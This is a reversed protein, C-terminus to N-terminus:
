RSSDSRFARPRIEGVRGVPAERGVVKGDRTLWEYYGGNVDDHAHDEIWRYARQALDLAKPDHTTEYAAAAGYLCFSIGYLHKGDTFRPIVKGDDGLGWYFGGYQKDWLVDELYALGHRAIPLYTGALDPYRRAVTAAVWTMRGQFVSFKGDSPARKWDRTFNAHFGGHETDVCAPFWM